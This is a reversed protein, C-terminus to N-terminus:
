RERASRTSLQTRETASRGPQLTLNRATEDDAAVRSAISQQIAAKREEDIRYQGIIGDLGHEDNRILAVAQQGFCVKGDDLRTRM